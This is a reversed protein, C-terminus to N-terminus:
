AFEQGVTHAIPPILAVRMAPKIEFAMALWIQSVDMAHPRAVIAMMSTVNPYIVYRMAFETGLSIIGVVLRQVNEWVIEEM